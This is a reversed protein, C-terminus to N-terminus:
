LGKSNQIGRDSHGDLCGFEEHRVFKVWCQVRIIDARWGSLGGLLFALRSGESIWCLSPDWARLNLGSVRLFLKLQGWGFCRHGTRFLWVKFMPISFLLVVMTESNESDMNRPHYLKGCEMRVMFAGCLIWPRWNKSATSARPATPNEPEGQLEIPAGKSTKTNLIPAKVPSQLVM